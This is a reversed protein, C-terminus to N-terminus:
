LSAENQTMQILDQEKRILKLSGDNRLLIEAAQYHSNYNFPTMSSCYGGTGGVVVFDGLEPTAMIRPIIQGDADLSQSDGSECCRGVIIVEDKKSFKSLDNESSLLKGDKSVVYFPHRSGFAHCFL